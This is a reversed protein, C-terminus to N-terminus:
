RLQKTNIGRASFMFNSLGAALFGLLHFSADGYSSLGVGVVIPATTLWELQTVSEGGRTLTALALSSIPQFM